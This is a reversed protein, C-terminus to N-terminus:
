SKLMLDALQHFDVRPKWGMQFILRPNSVLINYEPIYEKDTIVYENWNLKMKEFCYIVWDKISYTKGCGLVAEYVLEQNILKWVAEVIDGAFNFEKRVDINGLLLKDKNGSSIKQVARVIRQNIHQETRLPSDHNFFYGVYVKMSFVKRFYRSAYVSHIRAVAYPSSGDFPTLEDIPKGENLFQLASGSIFVKAAPCYLRTAELVNLTGTCISLHNEFLSRHQTTSNAAFHFIFDPLYQRIVHEIFTYDSVDGNLTCGKRSVKIVTIGERQLLENLYFGDQGNAGIILATRNEM